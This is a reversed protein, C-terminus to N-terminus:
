PSFWRKEAETIIPLLNLNIPLQQPLAVTSISIDISVSWNM